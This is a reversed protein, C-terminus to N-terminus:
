GYQCLPTQLLWDGPKLRLTEITMGWATLATTISVAATEDSIGDPVAALGEAKCVVRERWLNWCDIFLVRTGVAPGPVAEVLAEIVGVAEAGPSAPLAPQYGYRGRIM